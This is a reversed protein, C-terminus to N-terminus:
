ALKGEDGVFAESLSLLLLFPLVILFQRDGYNFVFPQALFFFVIFYRIPRSRDRLNMLFIQLFLFMGFGWPIFLILNLYTQSIQGLLYHVYGPEIESSGSYFFFLPTALVTFLVGLFQSKTRARIGWAWSFFLSYIPILAIMYFFSEAQVVSKANWTSTWHTRYEPELFPLFGILVPVLMMLMREPRLIRSENEIVRTLVFAVALLLGTWDVLTALSLFIASFFINDRKFFYFGTLILFLFLGIHNLHFATEILYPNSSFILLGISVWLPNVRNHYTFQLGLRVFIFLSAITLFLCLLRLTQLNGKALLFVRSFLAYYGAHGVHAHKKLVEIKPPFTTYSFQEITQYEIEEQSFAPAPGQHKFHFWYLSFFLGALIAWVFM